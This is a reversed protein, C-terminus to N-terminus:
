SFLLPQHLQPQAFTLVKMMKGPQAWNCKGDGNLQKLLATIAPNQLESHIRKADAESWCPIFAHM